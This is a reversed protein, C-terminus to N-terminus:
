ESFNYCTQMPSFSNAESPKIENVHRGAPAATGPPRPPSKSRRPFAEAGVRGPVPAAPAAPAAPCRLPQEACCGGALCRATGRWARRCSALELVSVWSSSPDGPDPCPSPPESSGTTGRAGTFHPTELARGAVAAVPCSHVQARPSRPCRRASGPGTRAARVEEARQAQPHNDLFTGELVSAVITLGKGAKLQSTFSLLQPHVM